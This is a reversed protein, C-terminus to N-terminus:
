YLTAFLFCIEDMTKIVTETAAVSNAFISFVLNKGSQTAIYGSLAVVGNLSGTKAYIYGKAGVSSLRNRLTGDTGGVALTNLFLKFYSRHLLFELLATQFRPTLFNERSLGSGDYLRINKDYIGAEILFAKVAELGTERSGFSRYGRLEAGLTRLLMEAHLNQSRKNIIELGRILPLSEHEALLIWSKKDEITMDGYHIARVNGNIRVARRELEDKLIAAVTEAPKNLVVTRTVSKSAPLTGSILLTSSGRLLQISLTQEDDSGGATAQNRIRFYSSHPELEVRVAKGHEPARVTVKMVNNNISLATVPAGYLTGKEAAYIGGERDTSPAFYSDDGVVDGRIERIGIERIKEALGRLAPPQGLDGYVDMLNPDGRGVLILNGDLVGREDLTGDTYVGTYYIFDPGLKEVAAATTVIKIVSAPLFANDPNIDVLIKDDEPDLIRIGWDASRAGPLKLSQTIKQQIAEPTDSAWLEGTSICATIFIIVVTLKRFFIGAFSFMKQANALIKATLCPLVPRLTSAATRLTLGSAANRCFSRAPTFFTKTQRYLMVEGIEFKNVSKIAFLTM